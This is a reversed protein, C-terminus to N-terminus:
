EVIWITTFVESNTVVRVMYRGAPVRPLPLDLSGGPHELEQVSRVAGRLDTLTVHVRQAQETHITCIGDTGSGTPNPWLRLTNSTKNPKLLWDLQMGIATYDLKCAKSKDTNMWIYNSLKGSQLVRFRLRYNVIKMGKNQGGQLYPNYWLAFIEQGNISTADAEILGPVVEILQLAHPAFQLAFQFAPLGDVDPSIVPVEIIQGALISQEDIAVPAFETYNVKAGGSQAWSGDVDGLVLAQLEIPTAYNCSLLQSPLPLNPNTWSWNAPFLLGEALAGNFIQTRLLQLDTPTIHHDGDMDAACLVAPNTILELGSLHRELRLLDSVDIQNCFWVDPTLSGACAPVQHLTFKGFADTVVQQVANNHSFKLPVGAAPNGYITTLTGSKNGPPCAGIHDQVNITATCYDANGFQDQGWVQIQTLGLHQCTLNVEKQNHPFGTGTGAIRVGTKIQAAPTCNDYTYQLLHSEPITIMGGPMLNVSIGHLCIVTPAACDKVIFEYQCISQNGCYDKSTWQIKHRGYPLQINPSFNISGRLTDGNVTNTIPWAGLSNSNVVTEMSGNNDTDLFLKYSLSLNSGSCLDTAAISLTVPGECNDFHNINWQNPDNTTHDCYTVPGSPCNIFTPGNSDIRKIIQTYVLDGNNQVTGFVTPGLMTNTPNPVVTPTATNPNHYCCDIVRFKRYIMNCAGGSGTTLVQDTVSVGVAINCNGLQVIKPWTTDVATGCGHVVTDNPFTVQYLNQALAISHSLLLLVALHIFARM